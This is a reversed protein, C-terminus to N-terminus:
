RRVKKQQIYHEYMERRQQPTMRSDMAATHEDMEAQASPDRLKDEMLMRMKEARDDEPTEALKQFVARMGQLDAREAVQRAPPLLAIREEQRQLLRAPDPPTGPMPPRNLDPFAPPAFDGLGATGSPSLINAPLLRQTTERSQGFWVTAKVAILVLLLLVLLSRSRRLPIFTSSSM